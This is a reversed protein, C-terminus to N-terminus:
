KVYKQYVERIKEFYANRDNKGWFKLDIINNRHSYVKNFVKKTGIMVYHIPLSDKDREAAKDYLTARKENLLKNSLASNVPGDVLAMNKITHMETEDIDALEDFVSDIIRLSKECQKDESETRKNKKLLTDLTSLAANLRVAREDISASDPIKRNEKLIEKRREYWGVLETDKIELHQPHIHELSTPNTRKFLEFDFLPNEAVENMTQDVNFLTLIRIIDKPTDNYNITELTFLQEQGNEDKKKSCISVKKGIAQKLLEIFADRSNAMYEDVLKCLLQYRSVMKGDMQKEHLLIYLGVLHYTERNNFWNCFMHYIRQVMSWVDAVRANYEDPLIIGKSYYQLYSSVVRYSFDQDGEKINKFADKWGKESYKTFIEHAVYDFLLEMRSAPQYDNSVLMSWLLRNHLRKEMMDWEGAYRFSEEERLRRENVPYIDCIMVMAKILDTSTLPTQGYNLRNFIDISGKLISAEEETKIEQDPEYWLFRVDHQETIDSGDGLLVDRM